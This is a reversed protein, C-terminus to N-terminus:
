RWCLSIHGTNVHNASIISRPSLLLAVCEKFSATKKKKQQKKKEHKKKKKKKKKERETLNNPVPTASNLCSSSDNAALSRPQFLIIRSLPFKGVCTFFTLSCFVFLCFISNYVCPALCHLVSMNQWVSVSDASCQFSLCQQLVTSYCASPPTFRHCSAKRPSLWGSEGHSFSLHSLFYM